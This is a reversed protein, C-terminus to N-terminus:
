IEEEEEEKKKQNASNSTETEKIWAITIGLSYHQNSEAM